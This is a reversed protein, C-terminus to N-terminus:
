KPPEIIPLASIPGPSTPGAVTPKPPSVTPTATPFPEEDEEELYVEEIETEDVDQRLLFYIATVQTWFYSYTLGVIGMFLVHTWFSVMVATLYQWGSPSSVPADPISAPGFQQQWGPAEPALSYLLTSDGYGWSVIYQSLDVMAYAFTTTFVMVMGGYLLAIVGYFLYSWPRGLVYSFARSLADFSETAEAGIAAFMLPWGLALGLLATVIVFGALLPLIWFAGVAANLVPIHLFLAGIGAFIVIGIIGVFPLVPSSFFSFYRTGAFKLSEILGVNSNRAVQVASIRCLAAGFLSWVALMWALLAIGILTSNKSVFTLQIPVLLTRIPEFVLFLSAPVKIGFNTWGREADMASVYVGEPLSGGNNWPLRRSESLLRYKQEDARYLDLSRQYDKKETEGANAGIAEPLIPPRATSASGIVYWGLSMFLAGLAGLLIKKPDRAHRFGSFLITWPFIESFDIRKWDVHENAM